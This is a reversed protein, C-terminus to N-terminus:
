PLPVRYLNRQISLRVFAYVGQTAGPTMEFADIRQAGPFQAIQEESQFGGIPVQPLDQGHTLPLAYTPGRILERETLVTILFQTGDPSWQADEDGVSTSKSSILRVPPGGSLPIAALYTGDKMLLKVIVWQGNKSIVGTAAIPTEIVKQLAAGDERIRYLFATPGELHRFFVEGDPGFLPEDGEANAIQRPPAGRDLPAVWLRSKGERDLAAVVIKRGDPAISYSHWGVVAFGPLLPESGGSALDAIRLESADTRPSAAKLVRYVLSKGDPTFRPDYSFGELSIEKEEDPGHVWVSSQSQGVATVLSRGDPMM